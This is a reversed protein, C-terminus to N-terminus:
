KQRYPYVGLRENETKEGHEKRNGLYDGTVLAKMKLEEKGM